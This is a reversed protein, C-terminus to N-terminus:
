AVNSEVPPNQPGESQHLLHWAMYPLWPTFAIATGAYFTTSRLVGKRSRALLAITATGQLAVFMLGFYHLYAVCVSAAFCAALPVRPARENRAWTEYVYTWALVAILVCCLLIAYPRAEQAFYLTFMSFAAFGAAILGEADSFIRAGAFYMLPVVAIGAIASPLRLAWEASGFTEIAARLVFGYLPPYMNWQIDGSWIGAITPQTATHWSCVEDFWLSQNSLGYLRM